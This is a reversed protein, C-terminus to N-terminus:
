HTGDSQKSKKAVVDAAMRCSKLVATADRYIQRSGLWQHISRATESGTAIVPISVYTNAQPIQDNAEMIPGQIGRLLEQADIVGNRDSDYAGGHVFLDAMRREFESLKTSGDAVETSLTSTVLGIDMSRTRGGARAVERKVRLLDEQATSSFCTDLYIGLREDARDVSSLLVNLYDRFMPDNKGPTAEVRLERPILDHPQKRRKKDVEEIARGHSSVFFHIKKFPPKVEEVKKLVEKLREPTPGSLAITPIGEGSITLDQDPGPFQHDHPILTIVLTEWPKLGNKELVAWEPRERGFLVTREPGTDEIVKEALSRLLTQYYRSKSDLTSKGLWDELSGSFASVARLHALAFIAYVFLICFRRNGV